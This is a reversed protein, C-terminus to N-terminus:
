ANQKLKALVPKLQKNVVLLSENLEHIMAILEPSDKQIVQELLEPSMEKALERINSVSNVKM